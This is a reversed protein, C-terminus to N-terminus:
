SRREEVAGFRVVVYHALLYSLYDQVDDFRYHAGIGVGIKHMDLHIWTEETLGALLVHSFRGSWWRKEPLFCAHWIIPQEYPYLNM